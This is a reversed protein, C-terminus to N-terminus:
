GHRNDHRHGHDHGHGHSYSLKYKIDVLGLQEVFKEHKQHDLAKTFGDAIMSATPTWKINIDKRQVQQRLWLHHVDIHKLKTQLQPGRTTLIRITQVNDCELMHPEDLDLQISTFLRQWRMSESAAHSLAVLEAETSSKIVSRQRTAKWDIPGGFLKFIYGESSYRTIPDDAFLADSARLIATNACGYEIALHRTQYLYAILRDAAHEHAPSPNSLFKALKSVAFTIDPRTM